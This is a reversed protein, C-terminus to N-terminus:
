KSVDPTYIIIMSMTQDFRKIYIRTNGKITNKNECSISFIKGTQETSNMVFDNDGRKGNITEM